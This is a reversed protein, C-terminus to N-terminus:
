ATYRTITLTKDGASAAPYAQFEIPLIIDQDAGAASADYGTVKVNEMSFKYYNGASDNLTVFLKIGENAIFKNYLDQNRFYVNTSITAKFRGSANGANYLSGVAQQGRMQNDLSLTFSNATVDIAVDGSTKFELVASNADMQDDVDFAAYTAGAIEATDNSSNLGIVGMTMGVLANSQVDISLTSIQCDQFRMYQNGSEAELRKEFAFFTKTKGNVIDDSALSAPSAPFVATAQTIGQCIEDFWLGKAMELGVDGQSEARLIRSSAFQRDDRMVASNGSTLKESLSESTFPLNLWAPTAPPAGAGRLFSMRASGTDTLAM